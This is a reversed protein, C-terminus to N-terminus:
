MFFLAIHRTISVDESDIKGIVGEPQRSLAGIYARIRGNVDGPKVNKMRQDIAEVTIRPRLKLETIESDEGKIPFILKQTIEYTDPNISLHGECIGSVIADISDKNEDRKYQTVKKYDLWANVDAIATEVDVIQTKEQM